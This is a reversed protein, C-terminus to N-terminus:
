CEGKATDVHERACEAIVRALADGLFQVSAEVEPSMAQDFTISKSQIGILTVATGTEQQLYTMMVRLPLMHTCFEPGGVDEPNIEVVTGPEEGLSAADVVLLHDPRFRLIKGSFNEPATEGNCILVRESPPINASLQESIMVGAADDARLVSGVGLVAIRKAGRLKERFFRVCDTIM